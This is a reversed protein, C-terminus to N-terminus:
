LCYRDPLSEDHLATGFANEVLIQDASRQGTISFGPSSQHNTPLRAQQTVGLAQQTLGIAGFVHHL